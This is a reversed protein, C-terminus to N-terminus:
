KKAYIMKAYYLGNITIKNNDFTYDYVDDSNPDYIHKTNYRYFRYLGNVNLEIKNNNSIELTFDKQVKKIDLLEGNENFAEKLVYKGIMEDYNPKTYKSEHIYTFKTGNGFLELVGDNYNYRFKDDSNNDNIFYEDTIKTEYKSDHNFSITAKNNKWVYVNIYDTSVGKLENLADSDFSSNGVKSYELIEYKGEPIISEENKSGCGSILLLMIILLGFKKM